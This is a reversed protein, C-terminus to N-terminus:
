QSTESEPLSRVLAELEEMRRELTALRSTQRELAEIRALQRALEAQQEKAIQLLYLCVRDYHVADPHGASDYLVLPTLGLADLDEAIFGIEWHEPRNPRTYIMPQAQLLTAFDTELRHINEKYRRSSTDQLFYGSEADWRVPYYNSGWKYLSRVRLFGNVEVETGWGPGTYGPTNITLNGNITTRGSNNITLRPQFSTYLELGYQNGGATRKSAIGEGSGGGFTLGPVLLGNNQNGPDIIVNGDGAWRLALRATGCASGFGGGDCGYLVPGDVNIGAFLKSAGYWGLGHYFDNRLYIDFDNVYQDAAMFLAGGTVNMAGATVKALSGSDNALKVATISGNGVTIGTLGSGAGSFSSATVTGSVNLAGAINVNRSADWQLAINTTAGRTGLAGGGNGYLVPGNVNVGGFLKSTGFWGLGHLADNNRLFIDHDTLFANTWLWFSGTSWTMNGATVKALSGSDNALKASTISNDALNVAAITGSLQATPLSGNLTQATTAHLAYPSPALPQRPALTVFSTTGNTRVAIELWRAAGNFVESGFDLNVNFLGNNVSVASQVLTSGAQSGNSAADYVAFRLDFLGTPQIGASNLRGQYTFATGALASHTHGFFLCLLTWFLISGHQLTLKM